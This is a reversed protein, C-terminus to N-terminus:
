PSTSRQQIHRRLNERTLPVSRTNNTTLYVVTSAQLAGDPDAASPRSVAEVVVGTTPESSNTVSIAAPSHASCRRALM